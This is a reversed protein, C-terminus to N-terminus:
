NIKLTIKKNLMNEQNPAYIYFKDFKGESSYVYVTNEDLNDEEKDIFKQYEKEFEAYKMKPNLRFFNYLYKPM